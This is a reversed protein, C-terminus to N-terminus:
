QVPFTSWHDTQHFSRDRSWIELCFIAFFVLRSSFRILNGGVGSHLKYLRPQVLHLTRVHLALHPSESLVDALRQLAPISDRGSPLITLDSFILKQSTSRFSRAVLACLKLTEEDASDTKGLILDILEQPCTARSAGSLHHAM